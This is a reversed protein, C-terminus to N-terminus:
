RVTFKNEFETPDPDCHDIRAVVANLDGLVVVQRGAEVLAEVRLKFAEHFAKKFEERGERSAPMYVNLLVFGGHDTIVM